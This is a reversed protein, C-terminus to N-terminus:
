ATLEAIYHYYQVATKKNYPERHDCEPVSTQRPGCATFFFSNGRPQIQSCFCNVSRRSICISIDHGQGHVFINAKTMNMFLYYTTPVNMILCILPSSQMVLFKTIQMGWWVNNPHYFSSSHSPHPMYCTHSVSSPCAPNQHPFKLSLSLKSSGPTFPHIINFDIKLLHTPSAHVPNIQSLIPVPPQCKRIRYHVNPNWLIRPIEQSASSSNAEWSHSQEM